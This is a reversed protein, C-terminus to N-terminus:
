NVEPAGPAVPVTLKVAAPDGELVVGLAVVAYSEGGAVTVPAQDPTSPVSFPAADGLAVAAPDAGSWWGIREVRAAPAVTASVGSVPLVALAASAAALLGLIRASM